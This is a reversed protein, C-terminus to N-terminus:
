SHMIRTTLPGGAVRLSGATADPAICSKMLAASTLSGCGLEGLWPQPM